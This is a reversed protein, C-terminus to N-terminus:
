QTGTAKLNKITASATSGRVVLDAPLRSKTNGNSNGQIVQQLQYWATEALQGTPQRIASIGPEVLSLWDVDDFALLSIDHPMRVGNKQLSRVAGKTILHDATFIASPPNSRQLLKTVGSEADAESMGVIVLDPEVGAEAMRAKYGEIREFSNYIEPSNSVMAINRHGISLLYDTGARTAGVNDTAVTPFSDQASIRDVVVIPFSNGNEPILLESGNFSPSIIAGDVDRDMLSRIRGQMKEPNEGGFTIITSYGSKTVCDEILGVLEAYFTNSVDPVLIGISKSHQRRLSAAVQNPRYELEGCAALVQERLRAKVTPDGNLVKSVTGISVSAREAVHKITKRAM